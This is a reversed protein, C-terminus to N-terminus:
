ASRRAEAAEGGRLTALERHFHSLRAESAGFLRDPADMDYAPSVRRCIRHDEEFVQRNMEATSRMLADVAASAEGGATRAALLRSCFHTRGPQASPMFTQLAYSLGFTSSVMAFPFVFLNLYGQHAHPADFLRGISRLAKARRADGVETLWASNRGAFEFRGPELALARL